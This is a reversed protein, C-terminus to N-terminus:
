DEADEDQDNRVIRVKIPKRKTLDETQIREIYGRRKGKTKLFFIISTEKGKGINAHLKSEAYDLAMEGVSECQEKYEADEELWKYHQARSLSTIKCATTVVGLAKELAELMRKKNNDTNTKQSM